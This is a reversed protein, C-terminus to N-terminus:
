PKKGPLWQPKFKSNALWVVPSLMSCIADTMHAFGITRVEDSPRHYDTHLGVTGRRCTYTLNRNRIHM